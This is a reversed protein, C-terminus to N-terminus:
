DKRWSRQIGTIALMAAAVLVDGHRFAAAPHSALDHRFIGASEKSAARAANGSLFVGPTTSHMAQFLSLPFTAHGM